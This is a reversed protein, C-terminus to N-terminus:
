FPLDKFIERFQSRGEKEGAKEMDAVCGDCYCDIVEDVSEFVEGCLSCNIRITVIM